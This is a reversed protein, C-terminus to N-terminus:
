SNMRRHKRVYRRAATSRLAHSDFIISVDMDIRLCRSQFTKWDKCEKMQKFDNALTWHLDDEFAGFEHAFAVDDTSTITTPCVCRWQDSVFSMLVDVICQAAASVSSIQHPKTHEVL